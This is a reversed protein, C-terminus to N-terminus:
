EDEVTCKAGGLSSTVPKKTASCSVKEAPPRTCGGRPLCDPRLTSRGESLHLGVDLMGCSLSASKHNETFGRSLTTICMALPDASPLRSTPLAPHPANACLLDVRGHGFWCDARNPAAIRTRPPETHEPQCTRVFSAAKESSSPTYAFVEFPPGIYARQRRRLITTLKRPPRM